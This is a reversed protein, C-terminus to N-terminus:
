QVLVLGTYVVEDQLIHPAEFRGLEMWISLSSSQVKRRMSVKNTCQFALTARQDPPMSQRLIFRDIEHALTSSVQHRNRCSSFTYTHPIRCVPHQQPVCHQVTQILHISIKQVCSVSSIQICHHNRVDSSVGHVVHQDHRPPLHLHSVTFHALLVPPPPRIHGAGHHSGEHLARVAARHCHHRCCRAAVGGLMRHLDDGEVQSVPAWDPSPVPQQSSRRLPGGLEASAVDHHAPLCQHTEVTVARHQVGPVDLLLLMDRDLRRRQQRPVAICCALERQLTCAPGRRKHHHASGLTHHHRDLLRDRHQLEFSHVGEVIHM